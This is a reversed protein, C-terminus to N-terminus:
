KKSYKDIEKLFDKDMPLIFWLPVGRSQPTGISHDEEDFSGNWRIGLAEKEDWIIEALSWSDEGNDKLVKLGSIRNKPSRVMKPNVYNM